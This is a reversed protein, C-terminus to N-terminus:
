ADLSGAVEREPAMPAPRECARRSSLPGAKEVLGELRHMAATCGLFWEMRGNPAMSCIITWDQGLRALTDMAGALANATTREPHLLVFVDRGCRWIHVFGCVLAAEEIPDTVPAESSQLWAELDKHPTVWTEGEDDVLIMRCVGTTKSCTSM